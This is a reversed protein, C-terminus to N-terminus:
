IRTEIGRDRGALAVSECPEVGLCKLGKAMSYQLLYGDNSALEVHRSASTLKFRAVMQEVYEERHTLWLTSHSSFYAYDARFMNEPSVMDRTQVLRCERCVLAEPPYFPDP